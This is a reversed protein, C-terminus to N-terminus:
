PLFHSIVSERFGRGGEGVYLDLRHEFYPAPCKDPASGARLMKEPTPLKKRGRIKKTCFKMGRIKTIFIKTDRLDRLDRLDAKVLIKMVRLDVEPFFNM